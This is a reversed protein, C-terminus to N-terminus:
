FNQHQQLSMIATKARGFGYALLFIRNSLHRFPDTVFSQAINRFYVKRRSKSHFYAFRQISLKDHSTSIRAGQNISIQNWFRMNFNRVSTTSLSSHDFGKGACKHPTMGRAQVLWRQDNAPTRCVCVARELRQIIAYHIDRNDIFDILLIVRETPKARSALNLNAEDVMHGIRQTAM